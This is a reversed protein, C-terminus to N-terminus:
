RPCAVLLVFEAAGLTCSVLLSTVKEALTLDGRLRRDNGEWFREAKPSMRMTDERGRFRYSVMTRPPRSPQWRLRKRGPSVKTLNSFPVPQKEMNEIGLNRRAYHKRAASRMTRAVRGM